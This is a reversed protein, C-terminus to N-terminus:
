AESKGMKKRAYGVVGLSICLLAYTSPEPVATSNVASDRSVGYDGFLVTSGTPSTQVQYMPYAFSSSRYNSFLNNNIPEASFVFNSSNMFDASGNIITNSSIGNLNSSTFLFSSGVVYVQVQNSNSVLDAGTWIGSSGGDPFVISLTANYTSVLNSFAIPGNPLAGTYTITATGAYPTNLSNNNTYDFYSVLTSASASTPISNMGLICVNMLVLVAVSGRKMCETVSQMSKKMEISLRM